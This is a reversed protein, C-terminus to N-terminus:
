AYRFRSGCRRDAPCEVTLAQRCGVDAQQPPEARQHHRPLATTLSAGVSTSSFKAFVHSTRPHSRKLCPV